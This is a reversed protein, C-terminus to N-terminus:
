DKPIPTNSYRPYINENAPNPFAYATSAVIPSCAGGTFQDLHTGTHICLTSLGHHKPDINM